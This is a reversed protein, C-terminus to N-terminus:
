IEQQEIGFVELVDNTIVIKVNRLGLMELLMKTEIGIEKRLEKPIDVFSVIYGHGRNPYSNLPFHNSGMVSYIIPGYKKQIVTRILSIIVERM